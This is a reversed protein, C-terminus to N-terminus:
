AACARMSSDQNGFMTVLTKMASTDKFDAGQIGMEGLVLVQMQWLPLNNQPKAAM